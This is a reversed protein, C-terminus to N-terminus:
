DIITMQDLSRVELVMFKEQDKVLGTVRVKKETYPRLKDRLDDSSMGPFNSVAFALGIPDGQDSFNLYVTKGSKSQGIRYVTTGEVTVEKGINAKLAALNTPAITEGGNPVLTSAAPPVTGSAVARSSPPPLAQKQTPAPSPPPLRKSPDSSPFIFYASLAAALVCGGAIAPWAWAPQGSKPVPLPRPQPPIGTAAGAPGTTMPIGTTGGPLAALAQASTQFRDGPSLEIFSMIWQCLDNSLDPRVKKLDEVTHRTHSIMVDTVTEGNFPYDGALAYYFTCGLSYLDTRIDLPQYALQEPAMTFVSGMIIGDVGTTQTTPKEVFKALGFDLLKVQFSGSALYALMLNSPKLDRHLLGKAHAAILGELTQRALFVFDGEAMVGDKIQEELTRGEILEMVVFGGNDDSGFDFITVINPHHLAALTKAEGWIKMLTSDNEISDVHLRKLAVWRGLQTDWARFVRGLGGTGIQSHIQYRSAVETDAFDSM